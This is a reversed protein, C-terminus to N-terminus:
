DEPNEDLRVGLGVLVAEIRENLEDLQRLVDDQRRELEGLLGGPADDDGSEAISLETPEDTQQDSEADVATACEETPEADGSEITDALAESESEELPPYRRLQVM